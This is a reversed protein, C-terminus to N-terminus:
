QCPWSFLHIGEERDEEVGWGGTERAGLKSKEGGGCRPERSEKFSEGGM